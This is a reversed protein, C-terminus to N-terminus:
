RSLLKTFSWEEFQRTTTGLKYHSIIKSLSSCNRKANNRFGSIKKQSRLYNNHYVAVESFLTNMAQEGPNLGLLRLDRQNINAVAQWSLMNIENLSRQTILAGMVDPPTISTSLTVGKKEALISMQSICEAILTNRILIVTEKDLTDDQDSM